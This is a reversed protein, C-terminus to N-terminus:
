IEITQGQKGPFNIVIKNEVSIKTNDRLAIVPVGTEKELYAAEREPNAKLMKIGFHTLLVVEPEAQQIIKLADDTCLHKHIPNGRPWIVALSLIRLDSLNRALENFYGTDSTYGFSGIDPADFRIGLSTPDSHLVKIARFSLKGIDFETDKRMSVIKEPLKQHYLSISPGVGEFGKLVSETAALTGKNRRRGLTMSEILVEADTYHDPHCHTVIIGTLDRPTLNVLNSYVLAGPGPDVHVQTEGHIIRFGATRRRQTSM